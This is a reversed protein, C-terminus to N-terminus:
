ESQLVKMTDEIQKWSEEPSLRNEVYADTITDIIELIPIKEKEIDLDLTDLISEYLDEMGEILSDFMLFKSIDPVKFNETIKFGDIVKLTIDDKIIDIDIKLEKGYYKTFESARKILDKIQNWADKSNIKKSRWKEIIIKIFEVLPIDTEESRMIGSKKLVAGYIVDTGRIYTVLEDFKFINDEEKGISSELVLIKDIIKLTIEETFDDLSLIFEKVM